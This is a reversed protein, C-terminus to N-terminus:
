IVPAAPNLDGINIWQPGGLDDNCDANRPPHRYSAWPGAFRPEAQYIAMWSGGTALDVLWARDDAGRKQDDACLRVL